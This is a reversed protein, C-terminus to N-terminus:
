VNSTLDTPHRKLWNNKDDGCDFWVGRLTHGRGRDTEVSPPQLHGPVARGGPRVDVVERQFVEKSIPREDSLLPLMHTASNDTKTQTLSFCFTWVVRCVNLNHQYKVTEDLSTLLVVLRLKVFELSMLWAYNFPFKWKHTSLKDLFFDSQCMYHRLIFPTIFPMYSYKDLYMEM